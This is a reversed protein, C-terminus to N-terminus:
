ADTRRRDIVRATALEDRPAGRMRRILVLVGAVPFVLVGPDIVFLVIGLAPSGVVLGAIFGAIGGLILIMSGGRRTRYWHVLLSWNAFAVLGHFAFLVGALITM